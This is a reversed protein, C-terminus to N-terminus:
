VTHPPKCTHHRPERKLDGKRKLTGDCPDAGRHMPPKDVAILADQSRGCPDAPIAEGQWVCVAIFNVLVVRMAIHRANRAAVLIATPLGTKTRNELIM